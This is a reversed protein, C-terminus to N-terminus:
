RQQHQLKLTSALIGADYPHARIRIIEQLLLIPLTKDSLFDLLEHCHSAPQSTLRLGQWWM